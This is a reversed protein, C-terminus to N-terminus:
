NKDQDTNKLWCKSSRCKRTSTVHTSLKKDHDSNQRATKIYELSVKQTESDFNEQKETKLERIGSFKMELASAIKSKVIDYYKAKSKSTQKDDHLKGVMAKVVDVTQKIDAVGQLVEPAPKGYELTKQIVLLCSNYPLVMNPSKELFHYEEKSNGMCASHTWRQCSECLLWNGGHNQQM